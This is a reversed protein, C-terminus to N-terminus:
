EAIVVTKRIMKSSTASVFGLLQITKIRGQSNGSSGRIHYEDDYQDGVSVNSRKYVIEASTSNFLNFITDFICSLATITYSDETDNIIATKLYDWLGEIAEIRACSCIFSIINSDIIVRQLRSRTNSNINMYDNYLRRVGSFSNKYVDLENRITSNQKELLLYGNQKDNLEQNLSLNENKLRIIQDSDQKAKEELVDIRRRFADNEASMTNIKDNLQLIISEKEKIITDHKELEESEISSRGYDNPHSVSTGNSVSVSVSESHSYSHGVSASVESHCIQIIKEKVKDDDFAILLKENFDKFGM